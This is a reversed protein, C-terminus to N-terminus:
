KVKVTTAKSENGYIDAATITLTCQTKVPTIQITFVGKENAMGQGIITKGNKITIIAYEETKGTVTKSTRLVKNVSPAAPPTNDPQYQGPTDQDIEPNNIFSMDKIDFSNEPTTKPCSIDIDKNINSYATSFTIGFKITGEDKNVKKKYDKITQAKYNEEADMFEKSNIVFDLTGSESVIFGDSNIGYDINIGKDGLIRVDKLITTITDWSKLFEPLEKKYDEIYKSLEGKAKLKEKYPQDSVDIFAVALDNIFNITQESGAFTKVTYALFKKFTADDLKLNYITVSQNDVIKSEKRSVISFGPNFEKAFDKIFGILKPTLDKSFQLMEKTSIGLEASDAEPLLESTDLVLYEKNRQKDPLYMSLIPPVKIIQKVKPYNGTLDTDSWVSVSTSMGGMNVSIDAQSKSITKESNRSIKQDASVKMGNLLIAIENFSSKDADSLGEASLNIVLETKSQCSNIDPQKCLANLLTLEDAAACGGLITLGLALVLMLALAKVTKNM